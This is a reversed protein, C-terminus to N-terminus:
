SSANIVKFIQQLDYSHEINKCMKHKAFIQFMLEIQKNEQIHVIHLLFSARAYFMM